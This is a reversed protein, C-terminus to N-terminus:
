EEELVEDTQVKTETVNEKKAKFIEKLQRRFFYLSSISIITFLIVEAELNDILGLWRLIGTLLAGVGFFCAYFSSSIVELILFLVGLFIWFNFGFIQMLWEKKNLIASRVKM